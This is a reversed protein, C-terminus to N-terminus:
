TRLNPEYVVLVVVGDEVMVQQPTLTMGAHPGEAFRVVVDHDLMSVSRAPQEVGLGRAAESQLQMLKM